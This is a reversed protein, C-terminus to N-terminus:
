AVHLLDYRGRLWSTSHPASLHINYSTLCNYRWQMLITNLRFYHESNKICLLWVSKMSSYVHCQYKEHDVNVELPQWTYPLVTTMVCASPILSNMSGTWIMATWPVNWILLKRVKVWTLPCLVLLILELALRTQQSRILTVFLQWNDTTLILWETWGFRKPLDITNTEWHTITGDVPLSESACPTYIVQLAYLDTIGLTLIGQSKELTFCTSHSVFVTFYMGGYANSINTTFLHVLLIALGTLVVICSWSSVFVWTTEVIQDCGRPVGFLATAQRFLELVTDAKNNTSCYLSLAVM